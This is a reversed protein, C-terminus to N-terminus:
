PTNQLFQIDGQFYPGYDPGWAQCFKDSPELPLEDMTFFVDYVIFLLLYNKFSMSPASSVTIISGVINTITRTEYRYIEYAGSIPSGTVTLATATNSAITFENGLFDMLIYGAWRNTGWSKNTDTWLNTSGVGVGYDGEVGNWILVKNGARGTISTLASVNDITIDSGSIAKIQKIDGWHVLDFHTARGLMSGFFNEIIRYQRSFLTSYKYTFNHKKSAKSRTQLAMSEYQSILTFTIPKRSSVDPIILPFQSM